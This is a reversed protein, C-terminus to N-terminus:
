SFFISVNGECHAYTPNVFYEKEDELLKDFMKKVTVVPIVEVPDSWADSVKRWMICTNRVKTERFGFCNVIIDKDNHLVIGAALGEKMPLDLFCQDGNAFLLEVGQFSPVTRGYPQFNKIGGILLLASFLCNLM